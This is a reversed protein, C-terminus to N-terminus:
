RHLHDRSIAGPTTCGTLAMAVELEARLLRLVHVIGVAGATALGYIYPRGILVASAGLALAKFIDTGRRIGGDLLIPIHGNLVAAIEPLATVTAPQCDLTRGGHNSVIVGDMGAELARTADGKHMIGKVLIPLKTRGRLWALDQWQPASNLLPSNLLLPGNPQNGAPPLQSLGRLNVAEIDPPLQFGARQERNRIASVPADLTIVLAKYGAQEARQILKETFPRDHQIYLQFWLPASSRAAIDELSHSAQTSVVMPVDLASAALATALEGDNHALKQYAIPALLVPFPLDTGLLNLATSAGRMDGLVRQPIKLRAFAARNEELTQEDGAGGAIYAYAQETLRERALSEYDSASAVWPPIRDLRAKPTTM